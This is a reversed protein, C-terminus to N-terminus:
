KVFQALVGSPNVIPKLTDYPVVCLQPGAAHPAVLYEDFTIRLGDESITWSQYNEAKPLAGEPFDLVGADKLAKTCYTSLVDLYKANPKFLDALVLLRATKLDYNIPASYSDPHAAATYYYFVDFHISIVSENALIVSYQIEIFSSPLSPDPTVDAEAKTVDDKFGDVTKKVLDAVATNFNDVKPGTEGTLIPQAIKVDIAPKDITEASHKPELQLGQAVEVVQPTAPPTGNDGQARTSGGPAAALLGLLLAMSLVAFIRSM